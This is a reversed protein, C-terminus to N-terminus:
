FYKNWRANPHENIWEELISNLWPLHKIVNTLILTNDNSCDGGYSIIGYQVGKQNIAPGGIDDVCIDVRKARDGICFVNGLYNKTNEPLYSLCKKESYVKYRSVRLLKSLARKTGLSSIGWGYVYVSSPIDEYISNPLKVTTITGVAGNFPRVLKMVAINNAHEDEQFQPHYTANLLRRVQGGRKFTKSGARVKVDSLDMNQICAASTLVINNRILSGSCILNKKHIIAVQWNADDEPVIRGGAVLNRTTKEASNVTLLSALITLLPGKWYGLRIM